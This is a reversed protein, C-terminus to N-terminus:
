RPSRWRAPKTDWGVQVMPSRRGCCTCRLREQTREFPTQWGIRRALETAPLEHRRGCGRCKLTIWASAYRALTDDPNVPIAMHADDPM